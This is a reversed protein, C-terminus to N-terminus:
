RALWALRSWYADPQTSSPQSGTATTGVGYSVVLERPHLPDTLKEHVVPGSCTAHPDDSPLACAWTSSGDTWPGEPAPAVHTQISNGFDGVYLHLLRGPTTDPVVSAIWRGSDVVSVAGASQAVPLWGPGAGGWLVSADSADLRGVVCGEILFGGGRPCGWIYESAGDTYHADGLDVDSTWRLADPGPVVIQERSADWRGLGTGLETVGYVASPDARFMRYIVRATGDLV